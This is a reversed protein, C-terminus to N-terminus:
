EEPLGKWKFLIVRMFLGIVLIAFPLNLWFFPFAYESMISHLCESRPTSCISESVAYTILWLLPMFAPIFGTIHCIVVASVGKSSRRILKYAMYLLEGIFLVVFLSFYIIVLWENDVNLFAELLFVFLLDIIAFLGLSVIAILWARGSTLRFALVFISIILTLYSLLILFVDDVQKTFYVDGIIRYASALENYQVYNDVKKHMGFNRHELSYRMILNDKNVPYKGPHYILQMWKERTLNTTLGHKEHLALFDDILEEILEKKEEILWQKVTEANKLELDYPLYMDYSSYNLLSVYTFNPYKSFVSDKLESNIVDNYTLEDGSNSNDPSSLFFNAESDPILVPIMKLTNLAKLVEEENAYSKYKEQTGERFSYPFFVFLFIVLITMLWEVYLMSSKKPYFSRFANNKNYRTVWYIFLLIGSIASLIYMIPHDYAYSYSFFPIESYMYGASYFALNLFLGVIVAPIFRVNWLTPFHLVLHSQIKKFM